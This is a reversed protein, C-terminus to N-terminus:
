WFPFRLAGAGRCWAVLVVAYEIQTETRRSDRRNINGELLASKLSVPSCMSLPREGASLWQELGLVVAVAGFLVSDVSLRTHAIVFSRRESTFVKTKSGRRSVNGGSRASDV